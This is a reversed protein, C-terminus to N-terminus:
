YDGGVVEGQNRTSLAVWTWPYITERIFRVSGDGFLVNGGGPHDSYMEDTHGFPNNPAHIIVQPHDHVDPGSHCGVLDGGSNPDSPWGAKPPVSAFPVVGVWTADALRSTREGVFATQSLGDTVGAATTKSNRYFPGNIICVPAGPVPEPVDFDYSFATSRGWPQNVGANTVYHSHAFVIQPSFPGGDNPDTADGNTYRHLAFGDGPGASSPCLFVSVKTRATTTNDPAWCPLSTNATAFLASQEIYPLILAGWAFGPVTSINGDPYSVGYATGVANPNGVFAPPFVKLATEYNQLALGVQKLNNVCQARRAAERAAQVAPLLLAILVAIIAIVVLLEILTFGRPRGSGRGRSLRGTSSM